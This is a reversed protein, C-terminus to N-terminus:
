QLLVVSSGPLAPALEMCSIKPKLYVFRSAKRSREKKIVVVVM